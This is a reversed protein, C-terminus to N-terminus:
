QQSAIVSGQLAPFGTRQWLAYVESLGSAQHLLPGNGPINVGSTLAGGGPRLVESVSTGGTVMVFFQKADTMITAAGVFLGGGAYPPSQRTVGWTKALPAGVPDLVESVSPGGATLLLYTKGANWLFAATDLGGPNAVGGLSTAGRLGALSAGGGTLIETAGIGLGFTTLQFAKTGTYVLAGSFLTASVGIDPDMDFIQGDLLAAGRVGAIPGATTTFEYTTPSGGVLLLYTNTPTWLVAGAYLTAAIVSGSSTDVIVGFASGGLKIAGRVNALPAGGPTLIEHPSGAGSYHLFTGLPTFTLWGGYLTTGIPMSGLNLVGSHGIAATSGGPTLAQFWVCPTSDAPAVTFQEVLDAHARAALASSALLPLLFAALNKM